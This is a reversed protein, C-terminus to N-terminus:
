DGSKSVWEEGKKVYKQKVATWAIAAASGEDNTQGLGSNFAARYIEQAHQPLRQVASPLDKVTRYPM